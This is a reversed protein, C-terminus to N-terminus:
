FQGNMTITKMLIINKLVIKSNKVIIIKNKIIMIKNKIIMIKIEIIMINNKVIMIKIKANTINNKVVKIIILNIMIEIKMKGKDKNLLLMIWKKTNIKLITSNKMIKTTTLDLSRNYGNTPILKSVELQLNNPKPNVKIKM